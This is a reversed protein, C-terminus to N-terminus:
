KRPFSQPPHNTFWALNRKESSQFQPKCAKKKRSFMFKVEVLMFLYDRFFIIFGGASLKRKKKQCRYFTKDFSLPVPFQSAHNVVTGNVSALFCFTLWCETCSTYRTRFHM